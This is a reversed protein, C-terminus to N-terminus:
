AHKVVIGELVNAVDECRDTAEELFDLIEKWKMIVIPDREEEFLRRVALQHARDAENELRNIEVAPEAVGKRRELAKMAKVVQVTSAGIIRGLERADPRV